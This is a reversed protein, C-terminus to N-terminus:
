YRVRHPKIDRENLIRWVTTKNITQLRPHGAASAERHAFKVLASLTWLEAALGHDKPKTCAVSVLWAKAEPAIEPERGPHRADKLAVRVGAALARDIYKYIAPRTVGVQRQIGSISMGDAYSLLVKARDVERVPATRSRSLESLMLRDADSLKLPARKSRGAM